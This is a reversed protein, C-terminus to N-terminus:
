KNLYAAIEQKQQDPLVPDNKLIEQTESLAPKATSAKLQVAQMATKLRPKNVNQAVSFSEFLYNLYGRKNLMELTEIMVVMWMGNLIEFASRAQQSDVLNIIEEALLGPNAPQKPKKAEDRAKLSNLLTNPNDATKNAPSVKGRYAPLSKGASEVTKAVFSTCNADFLEYDPKVECYLKANALAKDYEAKTLQFSEQYDVCPAHTLDPHVICGPRSKVSGFVAEATTQPYFGYTYETGNSENFKVYSHGFTTIGVEEPTAVDVDIMASLSWSTSAEGNGTKGPDPSGCASLDALCTWGACSQPKSEKERQLLITRSNLSPMIHQGAYTQKSSGDSGSQQVVHTLEHALLRKGEHTGPAFRGTGFVINHGATYANANVERASQEAAAGTHVRVRSFDYGFCQEMDQRLAPEMPRGSSALVHYVNAPATDMQGTTQGSFRQIRPPAVSVASNLPATLVQDAVRDAEQELPDKSAGISRKAQMEAPGAPYFWNVQCQLFSDAIQKIGEFGLLDKADPTLVIKTEDVISLECVGCSVYANSHTGYAFDKFKDNDQELEAFAWVNADRREEIATQLAVLTCDLWKKGAPSLTPRLVKVFRKVYKDGYGFYYDPPIEGPNRSAFDSAREAYYDATGILSRLSRPPTAVINTETVSLSPAVSQDVSDGQRQVVSKAAHIKPTSVAACPVGELFIPPLDEEDRRRVRIEEAGTQQVVHSLEHALLRRGEHTEPAFQDAGFVINHDVTYAHASVDRASQEAAAGSHVRVRSFDHGFRQEMDQRLAPELPRGSGALVRDVSVPATDMQRTSQGSFRQIRPPAVSVASNLPAALVQDAVRDAELELPDNSAGITLKAQLGKKSKCEECEGTLSSTPSGCACQRQLLMGGRGLPSSQQPKVAANQLPAVANM